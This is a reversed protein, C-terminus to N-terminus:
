PIYYNTKELVISSDEGVRVIRKVLQDNKFDFEAEYSSAADGGGITITFLNENQVDLDIKHIETLDVFASVYTRVTKKGHAIVVNSISYKPRFYGVGYFLFNFTNKQQEQKPYRKPFPMIDVTIKVEKGKKDKGLVYNKVGNFIKFYAGGNEDIGQSYNDTKKILDFEGAQVNV